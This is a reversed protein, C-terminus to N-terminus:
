PIYLMDISVVTGSTNLNYDLQWTHSDATDAQYRIIKTGDEQLYIKGKGDDTQYLGRNGSPSEVQGMDRFKGVVFDETDGIGTGRPAKFTSNTFYLEALVWGSKTKAMTAYGWDYLYKQCAETIGELMVEEVGNGEGYTQQFNERTTEYLRIGNVVDDTASYATLPYPGTEIKYTIELTNSAKGYGNVAVARMTVRGGPLAFKVGDYIPSDIDPQSGDITYYITIDTEKDDAPTKSTKENELGPKLWLRQRQKYTGPALSARPTQPSPMYVKYTASLPDSVLDGSICVARLPYEGEDLLIPEEYKVGGYPLEAEADFTYYIDYGQPSTLTITKKEEYYGAVLDVTPSMPLLETRQNRFTTLGTKEYALLMLDAAEPSRGDALMIRIEARYADPASPTIDTYIETYLAEADEIRGDAEYASGLLLLNDVDVQDDGDKERAAEFMLIAKEVDGVDLAEEGVQWMAAANSEQGFRALIRQGGQTKNLYLWVGVAAAIVLVALVIIVHSWNVMRRTVNHVKANPKRIRITAERGTEGYVMRAPRSYGGSAELPMGDEDYGQTDAFVPMERTYPKAAPDVYIRSSGQRVASSRSTASAATKASGRRGQRIGKVGSEVANGSRELLAGCGPCLIDNEGAYSGCHPCLM